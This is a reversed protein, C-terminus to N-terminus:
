HTKKPMALDIIWHKVSIEVTGFYGEEYGNSFVPWHTESSSDRLLNSGLLAQMQKM